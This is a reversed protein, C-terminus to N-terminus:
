VIRVVRMGVNIGEVVVFYLRILLNSGVLQFPTSIEYLSQLRKFGALLWLVSFSFYRNHSNM